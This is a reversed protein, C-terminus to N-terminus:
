KSAEVFFLNKSGNVEMDYYFCLSVYTHEIFLWLKKINWDHNRFQFDIIQTGMISCINRLLWSIKLPPGFFRNSECIGHRVWHSPSILSIKPGKMSCSSWPLIPIYWGVWKLLFTHFHFNFIIFLITDYWKIM